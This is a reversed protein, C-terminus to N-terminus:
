KRIAGLSNTRPRFNFLEYPYHIEQAFDSFATHLDIDDAVLIGGSRLSPWATRCEFLMHDYTHLSDHVFIDLPSISSLLAPLIDKADGLHLQWRKRLEQPVRWGPDKGEPLFERQRNGGPVLEIDQNPLDVSHLMGHRNHEMALLTFWASWGEHVGTEIVTDPRLLRVLVYMIMYQMPVGSFGNQQQFLPEERELQYFISVVEEIDRGSLHAVKRYREFYDVWYNHLIGIEKPHRYFYRLAWPLLTNRFLSRRKKRYSLFPEKLSTRSQDM